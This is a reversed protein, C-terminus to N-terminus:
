KIERVKQEFENLFEDVGKQGITSSFESRQTEILSIGEAVFDLVVLKGDRNKVRFDVNISVNSDRPMFECRAVFFGNQQEVSLVNFKKGNYNKFKPGYTNIMFSRYLKAFRETQLDSAEKYYKGLTFRSIWKADIVNDVEAIIKEKKQQETFKGNGAISIIKNGLSSIFKNVDDMSSYSTAFVTNNIFLLFIIFLKKKM